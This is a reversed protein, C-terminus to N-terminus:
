TPLPDARGLLALAIRYERRGVARVAVLALAYLIGGLITAAVSGLGWSLVIVVGMVVAALLPRVAISPWEVTGVQRAVVWQFPIFLIMETAVTVVAAANIGYIPVLALNAGLNFLSAVAFVWTIVRQRDVAILLYQTVSSVYSLPLFWILIRLAVASDPLYDNGGLIEILVPATAFTGIVIPLSLILMFKIALRYSDIMRRHDASAYRSLIPFAAITFYSPILLVMNLYKYAADYVGAARDGDAAQVIFVDARFFVHMLLSNMLLPWSVTLFWRAEQRGLGWVPRVSLHRLGLHFGFMSVTTAVVSVAALGVVGYGAALAALGLGARCLNTLVNLAAPLEMRERANFVSNIADTYSGPIISLTLLGIAIASVRSLNFLHMGGVAYATAIPILIATIALRLLTSSGLLRGAQEPHRAAERTVLTGLGYDSVTKLYLWAVVPVSYQGYETAGLLRLAFIAFALDVVKNLMQGAIPAVSNKALRQITNGAVRDIGPIGVWALAFLLGACIISGFTFFAAAYPWDILAQVVTGLHM